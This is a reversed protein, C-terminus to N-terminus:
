LVYNAPWQSTGILHRFFHPLLTAIITSFRFLSLWDVAWRPAPRCTHGCLHTNRLSQKLSSWIIDLCKQFPPFMNPYFQLSWWWWRWVCLKLVIVFAIFVGSLLSHHLQGYGDPVWEFVCHACSALELHRDDLHTYGTKEKKREM